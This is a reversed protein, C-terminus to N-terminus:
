AFVGSNLPQYDNEEKRCAIVLISLMGFFKVVAFGLIVIMIYNILEKVRLEMIGACGMTNLEQPESLLGSCNKFEQKCCSWPVSNNGTRNFWEMNIWDTYNKIGCCEFQSQWFDVMETEPNQKGYEQFLENMTEQVEAVVKERYVFGLAFATAETIFMLLLICLFFRLGVQSEKVTVFCGTVGLFLMVVAVVMIIIAPLLIQQDRFFADFDEYSTIFRGGVFGLTTGAVLFIFSLLLLVTKSTIVGCDGTAM